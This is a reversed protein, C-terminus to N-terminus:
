PDNVRIDHYAMTTGVHELMSQIFSILPLNNEPNKQAATGMMTREHDDKNM